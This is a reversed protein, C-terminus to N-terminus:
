TATGGDYSESTLRDAADYNYQYSALATGGSNRDTVTTLRRGPDYNFTTTGVPGTADLNQYCSVSILQGRASWGADIRFTVNGGRFQRSVLRNAADYVSATTGGLSDMVATRNSNADYV